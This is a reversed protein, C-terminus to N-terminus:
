SLRLLATSLLVVVQGDRTFEVRVPRPGEIDIDALLQKLEATRAPEEAPRLLAKLEAALAVGANRRVLHEALAHCRAQLGVPPDDIRLFTSLFADAM